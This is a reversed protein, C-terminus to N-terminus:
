RPYRTTMTKVWGFERILWSRKRLVKKGYTPDMIWIAKEQDKYGYGCVVVLHGMDYVYGLMPRKANIRSKVASFSLAGKLPKCGGVDWKALGLSTRVTRTCAFM